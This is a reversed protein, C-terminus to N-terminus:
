LNLERRLEELTYYRGQAIATEAQQIAAIEEATLPEADEEIQSFLIDVLQRLLEGHPSHVIAKIKTFLDYDQSSDM